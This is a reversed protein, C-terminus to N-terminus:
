NLVFEVLGVGRSKKVRLAKSFRLINQIVAEGPMDCSETKGKLYKENFPFFSACSIHTSNKAM